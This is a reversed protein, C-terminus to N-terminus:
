LESYLGPTKGSSNGDMVLTRSYVWPPTDDPQGSPPITLNIGPQPCAPCFLALEGVDPMRSEHAFGHWKYLKLYRMQRATRLLERYRDQAHLVHAVLESVPM